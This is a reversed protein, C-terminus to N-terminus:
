FILRLLIIVLILAVLLSILGMASITAARRNCHCL